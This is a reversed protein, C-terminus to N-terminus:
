SSPCLQGNGNLAAFRRNYTELHETLTDVIFTHHEIKDEAAEAKRTLHVINTRIEDVSRRLADDDYKEGGILRYYHRKRKSEHAAAERFSLLEANTQTLM